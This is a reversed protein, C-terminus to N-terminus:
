TYVNAPPHRDHESCAACIGTSEYPIPVLNQICEDWVVNLVLVTHTGIEVSAFSTPPGVIVAVGEVGTSLPWCWGVPYVGVVGGEGGLGGHHHVGVLPTM